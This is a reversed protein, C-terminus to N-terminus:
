DISWVISDCKVQYLISSESICYQLNSLIRSMKINLWRHELRGEHIIYQNYFWFCNVMSSPRVLFQTNWRNVYTRCFYFFYKTNKLTLHTQYRVSMFIQAERCIKVLLSNDRQMDSYVNSCMALQSHSVSVASKTIKVCCFQINFCGCNFIITFANKQANKARWREAPKALSLFYNHLNYSNFCEQISDTEQLVVIMQIKEHLAYCVKADKVYGNMLGHETSKSSSM